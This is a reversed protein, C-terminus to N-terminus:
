NFPSLFTAAKITIVETINETLLIGPTLNPIYVRVALTTATKRYMDILINYPTPTSGAGWKGYGITMFSNGTFERGDKDSKCTTRILSGKTGITLVEEDEYYGEFDVLFAPPITITFSNIDDNKLTPYDTTLIFNNPKSM